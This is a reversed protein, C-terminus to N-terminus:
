YKKLSNLSTIRFVLYFIYKKKNKFKNTNYKINQYKSNNNIM